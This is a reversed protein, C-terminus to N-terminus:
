KTQIALIERSHHVPPPTRNLGGKGEGERKNRRDSEGEKVIGMLHEMQSHCKAIYLM